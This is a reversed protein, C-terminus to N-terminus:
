IDVEVSPRHILDFSSGLSDALRCADVYQRSDNGYRSRIGELRATLGVDEGKHDILLDSLNLVDLEDSRYAADPKGHWYVEEWYKYGSRRLLEGGVAAHSDHDDSHEYGVDHLYGLLFMERCKERDWLMLSKGLHAAKRAVSVCHKMRNIDINISDTEM